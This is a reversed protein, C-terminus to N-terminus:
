LFVVRPGCLSSKPIYKLLEGADIVADLPWDLIIDSERFNDSASSIFFITSALGININSSIKESIPWLM